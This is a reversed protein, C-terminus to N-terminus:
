HFSGDPLRVVAVHSRKAVDIGIVLTGSKIPRPYHTKSSM